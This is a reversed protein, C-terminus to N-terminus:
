KPFDERAALDAIEAAHYDRDGAKEICYKSRDEEPLSEVFRILEAFSGSRLSSTESLLGDGAKALRLFARDNWQIGDHYTDEGGYTGPHDTM